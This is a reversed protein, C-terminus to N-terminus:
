ARRMESAPRLVGSPMMEVRDPGLSKRGLNAFTGGFIVSGQRGGLVKCACVEVGLMGELAMPRSVGKQASVPFLFQLVARLRAWSM